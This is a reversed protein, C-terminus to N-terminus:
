CPWVDGNEHRKRAEYPLVVRDVFDIKAGEIAGLVVAIDEYRLAPQSKLYGQAARTLCYTLEGATIPLAGADIRAKAAATLYPM